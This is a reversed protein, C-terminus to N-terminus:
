CCEGRRGVGGGLWEGEVVQGYCRGETCGDDWLAIGVKVSEM